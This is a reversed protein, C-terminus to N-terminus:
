ELRPHVTIASVHKIEYRYKSEIKLPIIIEDQTSNDIKLIFSCSGKEGGRLYVGDTCDIDNVISVGSVNVEPTVSDVVYHLTSQDYKVNGDGVNNIEIIVSVNKSGSTPIIIVNDLKVDAHIPANSNQIEGVKPLPEGKEALAIRRKASIAYIKATTITTYNYGVKVGVDYTETKAVDEPARVSWELTCREGEVNLEPNPPNLSSPCSETRNYGSWTLLYPSAKINSAVSDGVNKVILKMSFTQNSVLYDIDPEFSEIRLGENGAVTKPEETQYFPITCGSIAVIAILIVALFGKSITSGM